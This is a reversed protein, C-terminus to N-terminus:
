VTKREKVKKSLIDIAKINATYSTYGVWDPKFEIIKETIEEWIELNPNKFNIEAERKLNNDEKSGKAPLNKM